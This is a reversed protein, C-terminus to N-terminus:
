QNIISNSDTPNPTPTPNPNSVDSKYERVKGILGTLFELQKITSENFGNQDLENSANEATEKIERLVDKTLDSVFQEVAM